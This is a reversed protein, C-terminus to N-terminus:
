IEMLEKEKRSKLNEIQDNFNQIIKDIEKEIRFKQDESISKNEFSTKLEKRADDRASRIKVKNEEAKQSIIKIFQKRQDETLAPLKIHFDKGELRPSLNLPSTLIAKEIDKITSVDFPSILLGSPGETTITSLEALRLKASGGYTEVIINEVLSPSAKGTRISQLEQKTYELNKNLKEKLENFFVGENFM